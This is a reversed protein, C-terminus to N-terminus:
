NIHDSEDTPNPHGGTAHELLDYVAKVTHTYDVYAAVFERGKATSKEKQSKLHLLRDYKEKLLKGSLNNLDKILLDVTGREIAADSKRIVPSISGAPKLGTYPEGEGERHLRVLTELFHKKLLDYVQADKEKYQLTKDFLLSIEEEFEPEVWKLVPAVKESELAAVADRIVPGDYADCHAFALPGSLFILLFLVPLVHNKRNGSRFPSNKM